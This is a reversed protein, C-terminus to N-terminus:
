KPTFRNIFARGVKTGASTVAFSLRGAMKSAEEPLLRRDAWIRALVELWKRIKDTSVRRRVFMVAWVLQAEVGLIDMVWRFDIANAPDALFGLRSCLTDLPLRRDLPHGNERCRLIM